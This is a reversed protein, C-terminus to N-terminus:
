FAGFKKNVEHLPVGRRLARRMKQERQVAKETEALVRASWPRWEEANDPVTCRPVLKRRAGTYKARM